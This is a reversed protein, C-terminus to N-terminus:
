RDAALRGPRRQRHRAGAPRGSSQVLDAIDTGGQHTFRSPHARPYTDAVAIATAPVGDVPSHSIWQQQEAAFRSDSDQQNMARSM